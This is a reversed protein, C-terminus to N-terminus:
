EGTPALRRTGEAFPTGHAGIAGPPPLLDRTLLDATYEPLGRPHVPATRTGRLGRIVESLDLVDPGTIAVVLHLDSSDGTVRERDAATVARALDGSYLPAHRAARVRDLGGAAGGALAATLEDGPGYTLARRFVV